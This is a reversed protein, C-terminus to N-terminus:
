ILIRNHSYSEMEIRGAAEILPNSAPETLMWISTQDSIQVAVSILTLSRRVSMDCSIVM